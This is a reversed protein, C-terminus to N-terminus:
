ADIGKARLIRRIAGIERMLVIEEFTLQVGFGHEIAAIVEMHRLSDWGDVDKMALQDTISDPPVNLVDALLPILPTPM